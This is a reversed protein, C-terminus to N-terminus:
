DQTPLRRPQRGPRATLVPRWEFVIPNTPLCPDIIAVDTGGNGRMDGALTQLGRLGTSCRPCGDEPPKKMAM